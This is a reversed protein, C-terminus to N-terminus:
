TELKETQFAKSHASVSRSVVYTWIDFYGFKAL